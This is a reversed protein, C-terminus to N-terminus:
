IYISQLSIKGRYFINLFYDLIIFEIYAHKTEKKKKERERTFKTRAPLLLFITARFIEKSQIKFISKILCVHKSYFVNTM